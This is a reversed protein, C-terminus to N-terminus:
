LNRGERRIERMLPSRESFAAVSYPLLDFFEGTEDIMRVRLDALRRSETWRDDLTKLFIAIDYDSDPRADGRARSGFLMIREIQTGYMGDLEARIRVLNPDDM